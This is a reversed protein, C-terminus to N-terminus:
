LARIDFIVFSPKVQHPVHHTIATGMHCRHADFPLCSCGFSLFLWHVSSRTISVEVFIYLNLAVLASNFGFLSWRFEFSHPRRDMLSPGIKVIILYTLTLGITPWVSSMLPWDSVRHDAFVVRESVRLISVTSLYVRVACCVFRIWYRFITFYFTIIRYERSPRMIHQL